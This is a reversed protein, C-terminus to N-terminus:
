IEIDSTKVGTVFVFTDGDYSDLKIISLIKINTDNVDSVTEGVELSNNWTSYDIKYIM